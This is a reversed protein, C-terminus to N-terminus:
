KSKSINDKRENIKRITNGIIYVGAFVAVALVIFKIVQVLYYGGMMEAQLLKM